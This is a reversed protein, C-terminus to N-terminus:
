PERGGALFEPSTDRTFRVDRVEGPGGLSRGPRGDISYRFVGADGVRVDIAGRAEITVVEGGEVLRYLARRGDATAEVWVVGTPRIELTFPGASPAPADVVLSAAVAEASPGAPADGGATALSGPEGAPEDPTGSLLYLFAILAAVTLAQLSAGFWRSDAVTPPVPAPPTLPPEPPPAYAAAYEALVAAPDVDVERAYASLFGRTFIGGPLRSFDDREIAELIRVAIKTRASLEQISLGARQRAQQLQGGVSAM